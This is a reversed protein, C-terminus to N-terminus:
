SKLFAILDDMDEGTMRWRPMLDDLGRGSPDIGSSIARRLTAENYSDHEGHGDSKEGHSDFLAEATLPPAKEWFFPMMRRNGRRDTGHCSVCSGGMMQVHMGGGSFSIETNRESTGTYYIREGNSSFSTPMSGAGMHGHQYGCGSVLVTGAVMSILAM